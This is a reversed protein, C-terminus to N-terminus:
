YAGPRQLPENMFSGDVRFIRPLSHLAQQDICQMVPISGGFYKLKM